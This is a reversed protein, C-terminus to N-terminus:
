RTQVRVPALVRVMAAEQVPIQEMVQVLIQVLVQVMAQVMRMTMLVSDIHSNSQWDNYIPCHFSTLGLALTDSM